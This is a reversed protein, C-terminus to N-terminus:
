SVAYLGEKSVLLGQGDNFFHMSDFKVESSVRHWISGGDETRYFYNDWGLGWGRAADVFHLDIFFERGRQDFAISGPHVLDCWSQGSDDTTVIRGDSFALWWRKSDLMAISEPTGDYDDSQYEESTCKTPFRPLKWTSGGDGTYYAIDGLALGRVNDFFSVSSLKGDRAQPLKTRRWVRGGDVTRFLAEELVKKGTSDKASNPVGIKLEEQTMSRYIGGSLWGIHGDQSFWVSNIEGHPADLPTLQRKWQGGGDITTYVDARSTSWWTHQNIFIFGRPEQNNPIAQVPRWSKGGDSTQWLDKAAQLWCLDKSLCQIGYPSNDTQQPVDGIRQINKSVSSTGSYKAESQLPHNGAQPLDNHPACASFLFLLLCSFTLGFKVRYM